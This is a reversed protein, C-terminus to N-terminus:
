VFFYPSGVMLLYTQHKGIGHLRGVCFSGSDYINWKLWTGVVTVKRLIQLEEWLELIPLWISAVITHALITSGPFYQFGEGCFGKTSKIAVTM